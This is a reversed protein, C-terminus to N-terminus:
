ADDSEEGLERRLAQLARHVYSRATAESCRLVAAIEAYDQDEFYRLVVAARQRRPLRACVRRVADATSVLDAPDREDRLEVAEVPSERRGTRRWLSVHANVVMRRVYADPDEARGIREWRPLARELASQVADEAESRSGTLLYAFRLLGPVRASAWADFAAASGPTAEGVFVDM